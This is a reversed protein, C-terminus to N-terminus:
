ENQIKRGRGRTRNIKIPGVDANEKILSIGKMALRLDNVEIPEDSDNKKNSETSSLYGVGAYGLEAIQGAIFSENFNVQQSRARGRGGRARNVVEKQVGKMKTHVQGGRLTKEDNGETM